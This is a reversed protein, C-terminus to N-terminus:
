LYTNKIGCLLDSGIYLFVNSYMKFVYKHVEFIRLFVEICNGVTVGSV